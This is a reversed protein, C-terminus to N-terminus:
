LEVSHQNPLYAAKERSAVKLYSDAVSNWDYRLHVRTKMETSQDKSKLAESFMASLNNLNFYIGHEGLVEKSFTIDIAMVRKCVAM